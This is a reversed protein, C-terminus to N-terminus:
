LCIPRVPPTDFIKIPWIHEFRFSLCIDTSWSLPWARLRSDIGPTPINLTRPRNAVVFLAPMMMEGQRTYVAESIRSGCLWLSKYRIVIIESSDGIRYRVMVVKPWSASWTSSSRTSVKSGNPWNLTWSRTPHGKPYGNTFSQDRRYPQSPWSFLGCLCPSFILYINTLFYIFINNCIIELSIIYLIWDINFSIRLLSLILWPM